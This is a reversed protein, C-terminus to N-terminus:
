RARRGIAMFLPMFLTPREVASDWREFAAAWRAIDAESVVGDALMADRAAWMPPRLGSPAELVSYRGAHTTVELGAASLLRGLRLGVQLDNGRRAHFEVYRDQLDALDADLGLARSATADIDVLYVSGGPRALTALHDVIQQETAANHALVHRMVVVDVSGPELGTADAAARRLEVNGAGSHEVVVRAAALASEDREVGIVRGRPGVIEALVVSTAAPGCGVDAVTAGEVIGAQEWLDAELHRAREAMFRYRQVEEPSVTLAYDTV